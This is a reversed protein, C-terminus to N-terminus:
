ISVFKKVFNPIMSSKNSKKYDLSPHTNSYTFYNSDIEETKVANFIITKAAGAFLNLASSLHLEKDIVIRIPNNGNVERVTLYPNDKQATIRGILIADEEARWKHVLEKSEDSTMWFPATQNKPAIFGDKSEAWKLVIYPRKKEHFTFFRKNLERSKKELIGVVVEIGENEM